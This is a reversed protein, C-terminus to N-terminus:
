VEIGCSRLLNAATDGYFSDILEAQGNRTFFGEWTGPVSDIDINDSGWIMKDFRLPFTRNQSEWVHTMRGDWGTDAAYIPNLYANAHSATMMMALNFDPDGCHALVFPIEPFKKIPLDFNIVQSCKVMAAPRGPGLLPLDTYGTHVVVPVPDHAIHEYIPFFAPDDPYFGVPPWLKIAVFGEDIYKDITDCAHPARFDIYIAGLLKDPHERIAKRVAENGGLGFGMFRSEFDMALLLTKDIRHRQMDGLLIDIEGPRDLLHRHFDIRM